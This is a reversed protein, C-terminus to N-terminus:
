KRRSLANKFTPMEYWKPQPPIATKKTPSKKPSGKKTPAKKVTEPTTDIVESVHEQTPPSPREQETPHEEVPVVDRLLKPQIAGTALGRTIGQTVEDWSSIQKDKVALQEFLKKEREENRKMEDRKERRLERIMEKLFAVDDPLPSSPEEIETVPANKTTTEDDPQAQAKPKTTESDTAATTEESRLGYNEELWSADGYWTPNFGDDRLQTVMDVTVDTGDHVTGDKTTLKWNQLIDLDGTRLAGTLDRGLARSSRQVRKAAAEKTIHGAIPSESM